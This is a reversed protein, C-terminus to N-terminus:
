YAGAEALDNLIDMRLEQGRHFSEMACTVYAQSIEGTQSPYQYEKQLRSRPIDVLGALARELAARLTENEKKLDQTWHAM